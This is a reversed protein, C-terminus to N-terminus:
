KEVLDLGLLVREKDSLDGIIRRLPIPLKKVLTPLAVIQDNKAMHPKQYIDIVELEFRGELHESCIQKINAIAQVSKATAGSVYLRLVYVAQGKQAWAKEFDEIADKPQEAM